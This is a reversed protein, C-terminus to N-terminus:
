KSEGELPGIVRVTEMKQNCLNIEVPAKGFVETSLLARLAQFGLVVQENHEAGPKVCVRVQYTEQVKPLVNLLPDQRTVLSQNPYTEQGKTLQITIKHDKIFNANLYDALAQAEAATVASTYYLESGSKLELRTGLASTGSLAALLVLGGRVVLLAGALV